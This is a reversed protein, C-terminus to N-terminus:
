QVAKVYRSEMMRGSQMRKVDAQQSKANQVSSDQEPIIARMGDNMITKIFRVAFVM